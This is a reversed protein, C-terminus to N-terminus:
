AANVNGQLSAIQRNHFRTLCILAVIGGILAFLMDSQTDWPDGQTGLFDDAGQGLAVASGWEVLEYAASIALVISLVVFALMKPARNYRGRILIERAAIAPVLGQAFHGIKDYPNRQLSFAKAITFGFPVRAYTYHGGIMLIVAHIFILIYLLNTLPLRRYTIVLIPVVLVIPFIEMAWTLRDYSNVLSIGLLIMLAGLAILLSQDRTM